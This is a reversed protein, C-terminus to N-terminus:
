FVVYVLTSKVQFIKIKQNGTTKSETSGSDYKKLYVLLSFHKVHDPILLLLVARYKIEPDGNIGQRPARCCCAASHSRGRTHVPSLAVRFKVIHFQKSKAM